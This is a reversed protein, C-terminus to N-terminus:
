DTYGRRGRTGCQLSRSTKIFNVVMSGDVLGELVDGKTYEDAVRGWTGEKPDKKSM